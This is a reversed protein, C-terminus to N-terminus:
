VCSGLDSSQFWFFKFAFVPFHFQVAKASHINVVLCSSSYQFYSLSHHNRGTSVGRNENIMRMNCQDEIYQLGINTRIQWVACWFRQLNKILTIGAVIMHLQKYQHLNEIRKYIIDRVLFRDPLGRCSMFRDAAM